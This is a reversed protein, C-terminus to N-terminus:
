KQVVDNFVRPKEIIESRPGDHPDELLAGSLLRVVAIEVDYKKPSTEPSISM